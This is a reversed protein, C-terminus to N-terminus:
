ASAARNGYACLRGVIILLAAALYLLNGAGIWWADPTMMMYFGVPFFYVVFAALLVVPAYKFSAWAVALALGIMLASIVFTMGSAGDRGPAILHGYTFTIWFVACVLAGALGTLRGLFLLLCPVGALGSM